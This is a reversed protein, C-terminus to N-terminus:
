PLDGKLKFIKGCVDCEPTVSQGFTMLEETIVDDVVSINNPTIDNMNVYDTVVDVIEIKKTTRSSLQNSGFQNKYVKMNQMWHGKKRSVDCKKTNNEIQGVLGTTVDNIKINDRITQDLNIYTIVDQSNNDTIIDDLNIDTTVDQLNNDTTVYDM